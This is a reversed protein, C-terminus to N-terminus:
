PLPPSVVEFAVTDAAHSMKFDRKGRLVSYHEGLVARIAYTGPALANGGDRSDNWEGRATWTARSGLVLRGGGPTMCVTSDSPVVVRQAHDLVMFSVRCDEQFELVVSDPAPNTLTFELRVPQGPRVIAPAAALRLQVDPRYISSTRCAVAVMALVVLGAVSKLRM